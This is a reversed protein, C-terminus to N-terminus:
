KDKKVKSKVGKKTTKLTFKEEDLNQVENKDKIFKKL